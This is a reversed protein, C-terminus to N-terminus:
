YRNYGNLLKMTREIYKNVEEYNPDIFHVPKWSKVAETLEENEFYRIGKKYNINKYKEESKQCEPCNKKYRRSIELEKKATPYDEQRFLEMVKQFHLKYFDYRNSWSLNAIQNLRIKAGSHHPWFELATEFEHRAAKYQENNYFEMGKQHCKEASVFMDSLRIIGKVAMGNQSDAKFAYGYHELSESLLRDKEYMKALELYKQATGNGGESDTFFGKAPQQIVCGTTSFLFLLWMILIKKKASINNMM